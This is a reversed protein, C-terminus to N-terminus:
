RSDSGWRSSSARQISVSSRNQDRRRARRAIFVPAAAAAMLLLSTPEPIPSAEIDVTVDATFDNLVGSMPGTPTVSFGAGGNVNSVHMQFVLSDAILEGALAGGTVTSVSTTYLTGNPQGITGALGSPSLDGSLLLTSDPHYLSFTGGTFPQIILAGMVAADGLRTLGQITISAGPGPIDDLWDLFTKYQVPTDQPGVTSLVGGNYGVGITAVGGASLDIIEEAHTAIPSAGVVVCLAFGVTLIRLCHMM